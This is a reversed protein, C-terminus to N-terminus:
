WCVPKVVGWTSLVHVLFIFVINDKFNIIEDLHLLRSTSQFSITQWTKAHTQVLTRLAIMSADGSVVIRLWRGRKGKRVEMEGSPPVESRWGETLVSFLCVSGMAEWVCLDSDGMRLSALIHTHCSLRVVFSVPHHTCSNYLQKHQASNCTEIKKPLHSILHFCYIIIAKNHWLTICSKVQQWDDCVVKVKGHM